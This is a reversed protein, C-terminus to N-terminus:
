NTKNWEVVLNKILGEINETVARRTESRPYAGIGGESWLDAGAVFANNSIVIAPARFAAFYNFVCFDIGKLRIVNINIYITPFTVSSNIKIRSQGLVFRVSTDLASKTVGCATAEESIAEIVIDASAMGRLAQDKQAWASAAVMSFLVAVIWQRM